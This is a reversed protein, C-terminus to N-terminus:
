PQFVLIGWDQQRHFDAKPHPSTSSIVPEARGRTYDYRSFSFHWRSGALTKGAGPVSHSPIEAYVFWRGANAPIWVTSQFAAGPILVADLSGSERSHQLAEANAFQLQLRQNNPAVQFEAYSPQGDPRLFIEFSDGLEWLRQNPQTANSFIDVDELEAFLLLSSERWGVRITAPAFDAELKPLWAQGTTCSPADKFAARTPELNDTPFPPLERCVLRPPERAISPQPNSM